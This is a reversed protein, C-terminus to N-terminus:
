PFPGVTTQHSEREVLGMKTSAPQITKTATV